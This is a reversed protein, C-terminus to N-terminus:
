GSTTGKVIRSQIKLKKSLRDLVMVLAGDGMVNADPDVFQQTAAAEITVFGAARINLENSSNIYVGGGTYLSTNAIDGNALINVNGSIQSDSTGINIDAARLNINGSCEGGDCGLSM